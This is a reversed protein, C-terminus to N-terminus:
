KGEGISAITAEELLDYLHERASEAYMLDWRFENRNKYYRCKAAPLQTYERLGDHNMDRFLAIDADLITANNQNGPYKSSDVLIVKPLYGGKTVSIQYNGKPDLAIRYYGSTDSYVRKVLIGDKIVAIEANELSYFRDSIKQTQLARVTGEEVYGHIILEGKQAFAAIGICVLLLLIYRKM